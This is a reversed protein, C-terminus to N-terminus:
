KGIKPQYTQGWRDKAGRTSFFELTTVKKKEVAYISLKTHYMTAAASVEAETVWSDKRGNTKEKRSFHDHVDGDIYSSYWEVNERMHSVLRKRIEIHGDENRYLWKSICRYFCNGDALVKECKLYDLITGNHAARNKLENFKKLKRLRLEDKRQQLIGRERTCETSDSYLSTKESEGIEKLKNECAEISLSLFQLSADKKIKECKELITEHADLQLNWKIEFGHPIISKNLCKNLFDRHSEYCLQREKLRFVSGEEWERHLTRTEFPTKM